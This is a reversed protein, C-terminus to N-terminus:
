RHRTVLLSECIRCSCTISHCRSGLWCQFFSIIDCLTGDFSFSYCACTILFVLTTSLAMKPTEFLGKLHRLAVSIYRLDKIDQVVSEESSKKYKREVALLQEVTLNSSKGNIRALEQVVRVAEEDRGKGVLYRPSELLPMAFRLAWLFLALGGTTFCYYRWGM